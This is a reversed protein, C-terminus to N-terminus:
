YRTEQVKSKVAAPSVAANLMVNWCRPLPISTLLPERGVWFELGVSVDGWTTERLTPLQRQLAVLWAFGAAGDICFMETVDSMPEPLLVAVENVRLIRRFYEAALPRDIAALSKLINPAADSALYGGAEGVALIRTWAEDIAVTDGPGPMAGGSAVRVTTWPGEGDVDCAEAVEIPVGVPLPAPAAPPPLVVTNRVPDRLGPPLTRPPRPTPRLHDRDPVRAVTATRLLNEALESRSRGGSAASSAAM